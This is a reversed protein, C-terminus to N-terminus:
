IKRQFIVRDIQSVLDNKIIETTGDNSGDDVLIIQKEINEQLCKKNDTQNYKENFVPIIITLIM